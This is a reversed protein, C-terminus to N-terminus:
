ELELLQLSLARRQRDGTSTTAGYAALTQDMTRIVDIMGARKAADATLIRGMGFSEGRVIDTSMNRGTAVDATFSAYANDVLGQYYSRGEDSLPEFENGLVKDRGAHIFTAQMGADTMAKSVDMHMMYAGVSGTVASPASAIEDAASALWYGASASMYNVQATIPKKGRLAMLDAHGEAVGSTSGGPTNMDWVVSKVEPDNVAARTAAVLSQVSMTFGYPEWMTPKATIIGQVPIVAIAGSRQAVARQTQPTVRAEITLDGVASRLAPSFGQYDDCRGSAAFARMWDGWLAVPEHALLALLQSFTLM